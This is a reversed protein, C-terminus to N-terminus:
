EPCNATAAWAVGPGSACKAFYNVDFEDIEARPNINDFCECGADLSMAPETVGNLCRQMAAFDVMDVDGDGDADVYPHPCDRGVILSRGIVAEEEGPAFAGANTMTVWDFAVDISGATSGTGFGLGDIGSTNIQQAQPITLVAAPNQEEDVYVKLIRTCDADGIATLRITHYKDDGALTVSPDGTRDTEMLLGDPGGWLLDAGLHGDWLMLLGFGFTDGVTYSRVRLRSVVTAGTRTYILPDMIPNRAVARYKTKAGAVDVIRWAKGDVADSDVVVSGQAASGDALVFNYGSGTEGASDEALPDVDGNYVHVSVTDSRLATMNIRRTIATMGCGTEVFKLYANYTVAGDSDSAPVAAIGSNGFTVTVTASSQPKITGTAPTISTIWRYTAPTTGAADSVTSVTYSIATAGQNTLTYEAPPIPATPYTEYYDRMVVYATSQRAGGCDPAVALQCTGAPLVTVTVEDFPANLTDSATLRLVYTGDVSFTATTDQASADGFTVTGPGSAQSWTTALAGPQGDADVATGDLSVTAPLVIIQDAGANVYPVGGSPGLYTFRLRNFTISESGTDNVGVHSGASLDFEGLDFNPCSGSTGDLQSKLITTAGGDHSIIYEAPYSARSTTSRYEANILYRGPTLQNAAAGFPPAYDVYQVGAPDPEGSEQSASTYWYRGSCGGLHARAVNTRQYYPNDGNQGDNLDAKPETTNEDGTASDPNLQYTDNLALQQPSTYTAARVPAISLATGLVLAFAV